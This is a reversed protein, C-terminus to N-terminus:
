SNILKILAMLGSRTWIHGVDPILRPGMQCFGMGNGYLEMHAGDTLIGCWLAWMPGMLCFGMGYLGCPGLM